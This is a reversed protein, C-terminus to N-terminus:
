GEGNRDNIARRKEWKLLYKQAKKLWQNEKSIKLSPNDRLTSEVIGLRGNCPSCLLGRLCKGCCGLLRTKGADDVFPECCRHDHDQHPKSMLRGCIDCLGRQEKMRAEYHETAESGFRKRRAWIAFKEPCRVRYARRQRRYKEPNKDYREKRLFEKDRRQTMVRNYAIRSQWKRSGARSKCRPAPANCPSLKGHARSTRM